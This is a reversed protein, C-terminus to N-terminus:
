FKLLLLFSYFSDMGSNDGYLAAKQQLIDAM